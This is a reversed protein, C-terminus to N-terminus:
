APRTKSRLALPNREVSKRSGAGRSLRRTTSSNMLPARTRLDSLHPAPNGVRAVIAKGVSPGPDDARWCAAGRAIVVKGAIFGAMRSLLKCAKGAAAAPVAFIVADSYGVANHKMARWHGVHDSLGTSQSDTSGGAGIPSTFDSM